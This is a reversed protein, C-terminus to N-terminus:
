YSCTREEEQKAAISSSAQDEGDAKLDWGGLLLCDIPVILNSFRNAEAPFLRIEILDM